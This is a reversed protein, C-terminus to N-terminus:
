ACAWRRHGNWRCGSSNRKLLIQSNISAMSNSAKECANAPSGPLVAVNDFLNFIQPIAALTSRIVAENDQPICLQDIWFPMPTEDPTLAYAMHLLREVVDSRNWECGLFMSVERGTADHGLSAEQRDFEGWTFSIAIANGTKLPVYSTSVLPHTSEAFQCAEDDCFTFSAVLVQMPESAAPIATM